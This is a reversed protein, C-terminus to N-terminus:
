RCYDNNTNHCHIVLTAILWLDHREECYLHTCHYPYYLLPRYIMCSKLLCFPNTQITHRLSFLSDEALHRLVNNVCFFFGGNFSSPIPGLTKVVSYDKNHNALFETCIYLKKRFFLVFEIKKQIKANFICIIVRFITM